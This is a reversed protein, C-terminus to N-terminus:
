HSYIWERRCGIAHGLLVEATLRPAPIHADELLKTGQHVAEQLTM